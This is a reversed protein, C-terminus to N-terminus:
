TAARRSLSVVSHSIVHILPVLFWFLVPAVFYVMPIGRHMAITGSLLPSVAMGVAKFSVGWGFITGRKSEHTVRSLWVQFVPDLGGACFALFFRAPFIITFTPFAGMIIMFVGAGLASLKGILPPAVRDALRGLLLGSLTAGVAATGNLAGTWRSAGALRGHIEQVYLPLIPRDFSRAAAMFLLLILIPAGPGLGAIREKWSVARRPQKEPRVFEEKVALLVVVGSVLLLLGSVGFTLRYGLADALFGGALPGVLLGSFVAASLSGLAVGQRDEPTSGAIFTQAANITGTFMGQVFRLAVFMYVNVSFAMLSLVVVACFNARLMMTKRGYRDALMGWIPAMFALSIGTASVSLAAFFKVAKPEAVGLEQIFYPAFPLALSFGCLSLFQSIWVLILNKKWRSM